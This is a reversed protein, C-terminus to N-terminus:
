KINFMCFTENAIGRTERVFYVREYIVSNQMKLYTSNSMSKIFFRLFWYSLINLIGMCGYQCVGLELNGTGKNSFYMRVCDDTDGGSAVKM